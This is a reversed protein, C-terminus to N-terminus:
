GKADHAGARESRAGQAIHVADGQALSDPPNDIIADGLSIGAGVESPLVLSAAGTNLLLRRASTDVNDDSIDEADARSDFPQQVM